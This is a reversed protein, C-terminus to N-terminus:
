RDTGGREAAWGTQRTSLMAVVFLVLVAGAVVAGLLLGSRALAEDWGPVLARAGGLAAIAYSLLSIGWGMVRSASAQRDAREILRSVWLGNLADTVAMGATFALGLLGPLFGGGLAAGTVSFLMALGITDFSLAFAAGVLVIPLPGGACALRGFLRAKFGVPRVIAGAPARLVALLNVSGLAVLFAVSFWTGTSHLWAPAHGGHALASMGLAVATVVLGHGLSFLLGAARALEPRRRANYRAIGDIAVLHDPDLGHRLGLLLVFAALAPFGEPWATM